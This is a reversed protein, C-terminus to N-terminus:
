TVDATCAIIPVKNIKKRSILYNIRKTACFGDMVPMNCDMFIIKYQEDIEKNENNSKIMDIAKKGNNAYESEFKMNKLLLKLAIYNFEDDDVILAVPKKFNM